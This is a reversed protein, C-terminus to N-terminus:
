LITLPPNTKFLPRKGQAPAESRLLCDGMAKCAAADNCLKSKRVIETLSEWDKLAIAGEFEFVFLTALKQRLDRVIAESATNAHNELYDQFSAIHQRMELYRQLSEEIRDETRATSILAAAIIFHCRMAM